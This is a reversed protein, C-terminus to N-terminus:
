FRPRVLDALARACWGIALAALMLIGGTLMTALFADSETLRGTVGLLTLSAFGALCQLVPFCQTLSVIVGGPLLFRWVWERLWIVTQSGVFLAAIGALMGSRGGLETFEWGLWLPIYLNSVFVLVWLGHKLLALRFSPRNM